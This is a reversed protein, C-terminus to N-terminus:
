FKNYIIDNMKKILNPYAYDKIGLEDIGELIPKGEKKCTLANKLWIVMNEFCYSNAYEYSFGVNLSEIRQSLEANPLEGSILALIPKKLRLYEPFKGTLVGQEQKTNWSLVCLIDAKEQLNQAEKRPIVGHNIIYKRSMYGMAQQLITDISNGAYHIELNLSGREREIVDLAEFLATFDSKGSYLQGTYVLRLVGDNPSKNSTYYHEYGNEIVSINSGTMGSEFQINKFRNCLSTSVTTIYDATHLARKQIRNGFYIRWWAQTTSDLPDRMDLLWKIETNNKKIHQGVWLTSIPGYSTVICDINKKKLITETAKKANMYWEYEDMIYLLQSIHSKINFRLSRKQRLDSTQRSVVSVKKKVTVAHKNRLNGIIGSNIKILQVDNLWEEFFDGGEIVCTVENGLNTLEKAINTPRVAGIANNPYFLRSVILINM